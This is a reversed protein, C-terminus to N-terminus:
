RSILLVTVFILLGKISENPFQVHSLLSDRLKLVHWSFSGFSFLLSFFVFVFLCFALISYGLLTPCSCFTNVNLPFVLLQLCFFFFICLASVVSFKKLTLCWVVSGSLDSFMFLVFALLLNFLMYWQIFSGSYWFQIVYIQQISVVFKHLVVGVSHNM